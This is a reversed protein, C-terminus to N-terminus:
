ANVEQFDFVERLIAAPLAQIAELKQLAAQRMKEVEAMRNELENAITIQDKLQPPIPVIINEVFDRTLGKITSGQCAEELQRSKHRLFLALYKEDFGDAVKLVTVDQSIGLTTAAIGIRGVRTRSVILLDGKECKETKGSYLGKETIFSRAESVYLNVIDAGTIFPIT